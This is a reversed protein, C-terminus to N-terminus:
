LVSLACIRSLPVDPSKFNMSTEALWSNNSLRRSSHLANNVSKVCNYHFHFHDKRGHYYDNEIIIHNFFHWHWPPTCFSKRKRRGIAVCMGLVMGWLMYLILIDFICLRGKPASRLLARPLNTKRCKVWSLGNQSVQWCRHRCIGRLVSISIPDAFATM